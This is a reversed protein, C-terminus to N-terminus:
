CATTTLQSTKEFLSAKAELSLKRQLSSYDGPRIPHTPALSLRNVKAWDDDLTTLMGALMSMM